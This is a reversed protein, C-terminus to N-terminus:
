LKIALSRIEKGKAALNLYLREASRLLIAVGVVYVVFGLTILLKFVLVDSNLTALIFPHRSFGNVAFIYMSISGIFLTLRTPFIARFSIFQKLFLYVYLTMLVFWVKTFVWGFESYNGFYFLLSAVPLLWWRLSISNERALILGLSFVPLHGIVTAGIILGQTELTNNLLLLLVYSVTSLILLVRAGYKDFLRRLLPFVLYFQIIMSYFWWPGVVQFSQGPILNSLLSLRLLSGLYLDPHDFSKTAIINLALFLLVALFFAPYLKFLRNKVFEWYDLHKNRCSRYLGYSSLFVFVDVGYHGFYSFILGVADFFGSGIISNRFFDFNFRRFIFENEIQWGPFVHLFNHLVIMLICVAKLAKTDNKSLGRWHVNGPHKHEAAQMSDVSVFNPM